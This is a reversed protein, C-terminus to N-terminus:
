PIRYQINPSNLGPADNVAKAPSVCGECGEFCGYCDCGECGEFCGYCDCGECGDCCGYCDCGECGVVSLRLMM